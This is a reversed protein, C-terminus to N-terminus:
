VEQTLVRVQEKLANSSIWNEEINKPNGKCLKYVFRVM